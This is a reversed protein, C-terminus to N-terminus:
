EGTELGAVYSDYAAGWPEGSDQTDQASALAHAVEGQEPGYLIDTIGLNEWSTNYEVGLRDLVHGVICAPKGELQYQCTTDPGIEGPYTYDRGYDNVVAAIVPTVNEVTLESLEM